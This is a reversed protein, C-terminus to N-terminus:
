NVHVSHLLNKMREIQKKRWELMPLMWKVIEQENYDKCVFCKQFGEAQRPFWRGSNEYNWAIIPVRNVAALQTIGSDPGIVGISYKMMFNTQEIALMGRLDITTNTFIEGLLRPDNGVIVARFGIKNAIYCILNQLSATMNRQPANTMNRSHIIIYSLPEIRRMIEPPPKRFPIRNQSYHGMKALEIVENTLKFRIIKDTPDDKISDTEPDRVDCVFYKVNSCQKEIEGLAPTSRLQIVRENKNKEIYYRTVVEGFCVDGLGNGMNSFFTIGGDINRYRGKAIVSYCLNCEGWKLYQRRQIIEGKPFDIERGCIKCKGKM